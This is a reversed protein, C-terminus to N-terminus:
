QVLSCCAMSFINTIMGKKQMQLFCYLNWDLQHSAGMIYSIYYPDHLNSSIYSDISSLHAISTCSKLPRLWTRWKLFWFSRNCALTTLNDMRLHPWALFQMTRLKSNPVDWKKLGPSSYFTLMALLHYLIYIYFQLNSLNYVQNLLDAESSYPSWKVITELNM